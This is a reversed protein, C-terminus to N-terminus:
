AGAEKRDNDIAADAEEEKEDNEAARRAMEDLPVEEIFTAIYWHNGCDDVVGASREGYFKDEPKYLSAAGAAIAREYTVDVDPVYVHLSGPRATSEDTAESLEIRSDGIIMAAHSITGDSREMAFAREGGFITEVFAMLRHAGEVVLYPTVTPSQPPIHSTSM